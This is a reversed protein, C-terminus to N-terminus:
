AAQRITATSPILAAPVLGRRGAHSGGLVAVGLLTAHDSEVSLTADPDLGIVDGSDLLASLAPQDQRALAAVLRDWASLDSLLPFSLEFPSTPM